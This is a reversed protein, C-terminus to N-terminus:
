RDVGFCFFQGGTVSSLAYEGPELPQAPVIRMSDRGYRVASLPLLAEDSGSPAGGFADGLAGVERLVLRRNNKKVKLRSLTYMMTPDGRPSFGHVVFEIQQGSKFRIHSREGELQYFTSATGYALGKTKSKMAASTRELPMLKGTSSDLFFFQHGYRSEQQALAGLSATILFCAFTLINARM